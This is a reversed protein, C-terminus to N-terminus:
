NDTGRRGVRPFSDCPITEDLDRIWLMNDAVYAVMSGDPSVVLPRARNHLNEVPWQFKRLPPEPIPPIPKLYWTGLTGIFLM